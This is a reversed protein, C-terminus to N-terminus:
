PNCLVCCAADAHELGDSRPLTVKHHCHECTTTTAKIALTPAGCEVCALGPVPRSVGFGPGNCDPCAQALRAAFCNALEAITAMRTPNHHARMDTEVLAVGNGRALAEMLKEDFAAPTSVGKALAPRRESVGGPRIIVAHEPFGITRLFATGEAINTVEAHAHNTRAFVRSISHIRNHREDVLVMLETGASVLPLDPHPGFSGESAIGLDLGSLRMAARAKRIATDRMSKIRPVEGTFTGFADTDLGRVLLTKVGVVTLAPAIVREKGHMTALAAQRGSLEAVRSFDAGIALDLM